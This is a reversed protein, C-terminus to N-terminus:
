LFNKIKDKVSACIAKRIRYTKQKIATDTSNYLKAIERYSMNKTYVLEILEQDEKSFEQKLEELIKETGNLKVLTDLYDPNYPIDFMLNNKYDFLSKNLSRTKNMESYKKKILNNVTGYLWGEPNKLETKKGLVADCLSLYAESIIEDIEQTCSNPKYRCLQRLRPECKEWLQHCLEIKNESKSPM